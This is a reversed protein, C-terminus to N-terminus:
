LQIHYVIDNIKKMILYPGKWLKQFKPTIGKKRQPNYLWVPDGRQLLSAPSLQVDYYQKM